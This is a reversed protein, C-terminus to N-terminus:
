WIHDIYNIRSPDVSGAYFAFGRPGAYNRTPAHTHRGSCSGLSVCREPPGLGLIGVYVALLDILAPQNGLLPEVCRWWCLVGGEARLIEQARGLNMGFQVARSAFGEPSMSAFRILQDFCHQVLQRASCQCDPGGHEYYPRPDDLLARMRQIQAATFHPRTCEAM